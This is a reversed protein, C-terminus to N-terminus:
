PFGYLSDKRCFGQSVKPSLDIGDATMFYSCRFNYKESLSIRLYKHRREFNDALVVNNPMM